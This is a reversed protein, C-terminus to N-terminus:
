PIQSPKPPLRSTKRGNESFFHRRSSLFKGRLAFTSRKRPKERGQPGPVPSLPPFRRLGRRIAMEQVRPPCPTKWCPTSVAPHESDCSCRNFVGSFALFPGAIAPAPPPSHWDSFALWGALPHWLIGALSHWLSIGPGGGRGRRGRRPRPPGLPQAPRRGGLPQPPVRGVQGRQRMPPIPPIQRGKYRDRM